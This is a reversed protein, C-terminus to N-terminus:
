TRHVCCLHSPLAEKSSYASFLARPTLRPIILFKSVLKETSTKIPFKTM